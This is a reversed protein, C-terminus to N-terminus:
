AYDSNTSRPQQQVASISASPSSAPLWSYPPCRRCHHATLLLSALRHMLHQLCKADLPLSCANQHSPVAHPCSAFSGSYPMAQWTMRKLSAITLTPQLLIAQLQLVELNAFRIALSLLCSASAHHTGMLATLVASYPLSLDHCDLM